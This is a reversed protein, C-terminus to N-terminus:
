QSRSISDAVSIRKSPTYQAKITINSQHTILVLKRVITMVRQSKSTFTNLIQVVAMNGIHFLIRKNSLRNYWLSIAFCVSFLELFTMDRVIGVEVWYVPWKAHAWDTCAVPLLRFASKIDSKALLTGPGLSAVIAEADDM